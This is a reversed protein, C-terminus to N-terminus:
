RLVSFLVFLSRVAILGFVLIVVSDLFDQSWRTRALFDAGLRLIVLLFIGYGVFASGFAFHALCQM